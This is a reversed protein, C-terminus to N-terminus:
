FKTEHIFLGKWFILHFHYESYNKFFIVIGFVYSTIIHLSIILFNVYLTLVKCINFNWSLIM